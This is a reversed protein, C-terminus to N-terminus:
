IGMKLNVLRRRGALNVVALSFLCAAAFQVFVYILCKLLVEERLAQRPLQNQRIDSFLLLEPLAPWLVGDRLLGSREDRDCLSPHMQCSRGRHLIDQGCAQNVGIDENVGIVFIRRKVAFALCNYFLGYVAPNLGGDGDLVKDLKVGNYGVFSPNFTGQGRNFCGLKDIEILGLFIDFDNGGRYLGESGKCQKYFSMLGLGLGYKVEEENGGHHVIIDMRNICGITIM